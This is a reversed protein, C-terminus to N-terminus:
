KKRSSLALEIKEMLMEKSVPKALCAVPNYKYFELLTNQDLNGSLIIFPIDQYNPNQKIISMLAVGSYLPMQYDLLIVDPINSAMYELALKTSNIMIVNYYEHLFSNLQKLYSMDDDIAMITRRHQSQHKKHCVEKIKEALEEKNVPKVLYGDVGMALSKMVSYKDKKGTLMIVPTNVCEKLNRLQEVTKFGNMIPMEIDLLIVDFHEQQACILAQRGNSVTTVNNNAELYLKITDLTQLDDDIVLVNARKINM